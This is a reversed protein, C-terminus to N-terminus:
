VRKEFRRKKGSLPKSLNQVSFTPYCLNLLPQPRLLNLFHVSSLNEYGLTKEKEFVCSQKNNREWNPRTESERPEKEFM